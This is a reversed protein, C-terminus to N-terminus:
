SAFRKLSSLLSLSSILLQTTKFMKNSGKTYNYDVVLGGFYNKHFQWLFRPYIQFWLRDYATTSDSKETNAAADYGVGWYNDPMDKFNFDGYIRLKDKLWFSTLKTGFFYAGTSSIGLM